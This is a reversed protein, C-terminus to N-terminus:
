RSVAFDKVSAGGEKTRAELVQTRLLDHRWPSVKKVTGGTAVLTGVADKTRTNQRHTGASQANGV